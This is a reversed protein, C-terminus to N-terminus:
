ADVRLHSCSIFMAFLTIHPNSVTQCGEPPDSKKWRVPSITAKGSSTEAKHESSAAQLYM